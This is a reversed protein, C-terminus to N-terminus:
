NGSFNPSAVLLTVPLSSWAGYVIAAIGGSSYLINSPDVPPFSLSYPLSGGHIKTWISGVNRLAAALRSRHNDPIDASTVTFSSISINFPKKWLVTLRKVRGSVDVHAGAFVSASLRIRCSLFNLVGM